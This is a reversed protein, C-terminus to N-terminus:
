IVLDPSANLVLTHSKGIQDSFKTYFDSSFKTTWNIICKFCHLIKWLLWWRFANYTQWLSIWWNLWLIRHDVFEDGFKTIYKEGSETLWLNTVLNLSPNNVLNPSKSFEDGFKTIFGECFKVSFVRFSMGGCVCWYWFHVTKACYMVFNQSWVWVCWAM